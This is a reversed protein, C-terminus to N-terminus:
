GSGFEYAIAWKPSKSPETLGAQLHLQNVKVVAGDIEYPFRSRMEFLQHCQEIVEEITACVRLQPRNVRLGWRQLHIMLEYHTSLPPGSMEGVGYCFLNLPRKVTVRPNLQRLSDAAAAKASSFAPLSREIRDRNLTEFPQVEMYVEGWVELSDPVPRGGVVGALTLPVSLITKLNPTVPEGLYGDGRTAATVLRGKQYGMAVSIGDIKPEVTYQFPSDDGMARKMERDFDVLGQDEFAKELRLMPRRHRILTIKKPTM